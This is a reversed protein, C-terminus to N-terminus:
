IIFLIYMLDNKKILELEVLDIMLLSTKNNCLIPRLNIM